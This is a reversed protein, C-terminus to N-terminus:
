HWPVTGAITYIRNIHVYSSKIEPFKSNLVYRSLELPAYKNDHCGISITVPSQVRLGQSLGQVKFSRTACCLISEQLTRHCLVQCCPACLVDFLSAARSIFHNFDVTPLHYLEARSTSLARPQCFQFAPALSLIAPANYDRSVDIDTKVCESGGTIRDYRPPTWGAAFSKLLELLKRRRGLCIAAEYQALDCMYASLEPVEDVM